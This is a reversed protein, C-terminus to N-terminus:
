GQSPQRLSLHAIHARSAPTLLQVKPGADSLDEAARHYPLLLGVASALASQLNCHGSEPYSRVDAQASCMDAKPPLASMGTQVACTRKQGLASM